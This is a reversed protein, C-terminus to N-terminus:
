AKQIMSIFGAHAQDCERALVMSDVLVGQKTVQVISTGGDGVIFLTDTDKNYAVASAEDALLNAGSGVPLSFRGSLSYNALEFSSQADKFAVTPSSFTATQVSSVGDSGGGCAALSAVLVIAATSKKM